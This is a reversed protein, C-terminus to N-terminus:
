RWMSCQRYHSRRDSCCARSLTSHNLPYLDSNEVGLFDFGSAAQLQVCADVVPMIAHADGQRSGCMAWPLCPYGQFSMRLPRDQPRGTPPVQKSIRCQKGPHKLCSGVSAVGDAPFIAERNDRLYRRMDQHCRARAELSAGEPPHMSLWQDFHPKPMYDSVSSFVHTPGPDAEIMLKRSSQLVDCGRHLDLWDKRFQVGEAVM